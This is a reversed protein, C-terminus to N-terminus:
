GAVIATDMELAKELEREIVPYTVANWLDGFHRSIMYLADPDDTDIVFFIKLPSGGLIEYRTITNCKSQFVKDHGKEFWSERERNIDSLTVGAKAEYVSIYLM